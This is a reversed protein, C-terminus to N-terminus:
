FCVANSKIEIQISRKANTGTQRNNTLLPRTQLIARKTMLNVINATSNLMM